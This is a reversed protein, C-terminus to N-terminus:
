SNTPREVRKARDCSNKHKTERNVSAPGSSDAAAFTSAASVGTSALPLVDDTADVPNVFALAVGALVVAATFTFTHDTKMNQLFQAHLRSGRRVTEFHGSM